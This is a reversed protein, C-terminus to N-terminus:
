FSITGLKGKKLPCDIKKVKIGGNDYFYINAGSDQFYIFNDDKNEIVFSMSKSTFYEIKDIKAHYYHHTHGTIVAIVNDHKKVCELLKNSNIAKDMSFQESLLHHHTFLITNINDSLEEDIREITKLSIYGDNFEKDSSDFSIVKLDDMKITEFVESDDDKGFFAKNLNHRNDHNGSTVIISCNFTEELYEKVFIYDDISGQECIDGSVILLDFDKEENEFTSSLQELPDDISILVEKFISDVIKPDKKYHLDSIHAIKIM